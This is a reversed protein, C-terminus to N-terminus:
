IKTINNRTYEDYFIFPIRINIPRIKEEKLQIEGSFFVFVLRKHTLSFHFFFGIEILNFHTDCAHQFFFM